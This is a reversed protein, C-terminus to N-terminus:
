VEKFRCNSPFANEVSHVRKSCILTVRTYKGKAFNPYYFSNLSKSQKGVRMLQENLKHMPFKSLM